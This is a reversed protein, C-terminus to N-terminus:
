KGLRPWRTNRVSGGAAVSPSPADGGLGRRSNGGRRANSSAACTGRRKNASSTAACARVFGRVSAACVALSGSANHSAVISRGGARAGARGKGAALRVRRACSSRTSQLESSSSGSWGSRYYYSIRRKQRKRWLTTQRECPAAHPGYQVIPAVHLYMRRAVHLPLWAPCLCGRAEGQVRRICRSAHGRGHDQALPLRVAQPAQRRAERAQARLRPASCRTHRVATGSRSGHRATGAVICWTGSQVSSCGPTGVAHM